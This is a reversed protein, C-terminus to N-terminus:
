NSQALLIAAMRASTCLTNPEKHVTVLYAFDTIHQSAIGRRTNESRRQQDRHRNPENNDANREQKAEDQQQHVCELQLATLTTNVELAESLASAGKDRIKNDARKNNFNATNKNATAKSCM